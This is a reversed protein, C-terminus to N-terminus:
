FLWRKIEEIAKQQFVPNGNFDRYSHDANKIEVISANVGKRQLEEKVKEGNGFRDNEGQIVLGLKGKLNETLFDGLVMGLIIVKIKINPHKEGEFYSSVIIGGLSKAIIIIEEYGEKELFDLVIELTEKEELLEKGSSGKEGRECYLFNFMFISRSIDDQLSSFINQIFSDNIGNLGSGHLILYVSKTNKRKYYNFTLDNIKM